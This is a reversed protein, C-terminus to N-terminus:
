HAGELLLGNTQSESKAKM